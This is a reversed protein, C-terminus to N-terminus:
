ITGWTAIKNQMDHRGGSPALLAQCFNPLASLGRDFAASHLEL